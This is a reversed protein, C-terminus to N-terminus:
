ENFLLEGNGKEWNRIVVMRSDLITFKTAKFIEYLYIWETNTRRHSVKNVKKIINMNNWIVSNGKKFALYYEMTHIFIEWHKLTKIKWKAILCRYKSMIKFETNEFGLKSKAKRGLGWKQSKHECEELRQFWFGWLSRQHEEDAGMKLRDNFEITEESHKKCKGKGGWERQMIITWDSM